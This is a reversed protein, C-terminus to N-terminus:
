LSGRLSQVVRDQEAESLGPYLPLTIASQGYAEAEPFQGAKFGLAQYYPQLHIPMYHLNVGIGKGRMANFVARHRASDADTLRVVYLHFASRNSPQIVPLQLPLGALAEDYRRALQNRREVYADLRGLQSAGLAAQIDTLRYNFGLLHQEYHWAVPEMARKDVFLAPDRTIGHSRLMQMRVALAADNTLAM